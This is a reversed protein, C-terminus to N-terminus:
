PGRVTARNARSFSKQRRRAKITTISQFTVAIPLRTKRCARLHHPSKKEPVQRPSNLKHLTNNNNTSHLQQAYSNPYTNSKVLKLIYEADSNFYCIKM